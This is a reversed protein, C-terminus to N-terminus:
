NQKVTLIDHVNKVFSFSLGKLNKIYPVYYVLGFNKYLDGVIVFLSSILDGGSM